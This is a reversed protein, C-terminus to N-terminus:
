DLGISRQVMPRSKRRPQGPKSEFVAPRGLLAVAIDAFWFLVRGDTSIAPAIPTTKPSM